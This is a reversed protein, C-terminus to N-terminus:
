QPAGRTWSQPDTALDFQPVRQRCLDQTVRALRKALAAARIRIDPVATAEWFAGQTLPGLAFVRAQPEGRSDLLRGDEAVDLGLKLPHARALGNALIAQVLPDGSRALDPCPGTCNIVHDVQLTESLGGRTWIQVRRKAGAQSVDRVRGATVRLLGASNMSDIWNAVHPATRHRHVDWWPRLHRLFRRQEDFTFSRWLATTIPRLRDIEGHWPEGRAVAQDASKRLVKMAEGLRKRHPDFYAPLPARPEVHAHPTLGRRSVAYIRGTRSAATLSLATDIMTLGTGLCLVDDAPRVQALAAHDWPDILDSTAFPSPAAAPQNGLAFVVADCDFQRGSGLRVRAGRETMRCDVAPERILEIAGPEATRMARALVAELYSGYTARPAFALSPTQEQGRERMWEVFDDPRSPDATLAGARVNLLHRPDGTCYALGPGFRGTKEILLVRPAARGLQLVQAALTAGSFGAGIIAVVPKWSSGM